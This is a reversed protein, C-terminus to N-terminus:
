SQALHPFPVAFVVPEAPRVGRVQLWETVAAVTGGVFAVDEAKKVLVEGRERPPRDVAALKADRQAAALRPM